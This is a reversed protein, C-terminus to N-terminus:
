EVLSRVTPDTDAAIRVRLESAPTEIRSLLAQFAAMRVSASRHFSVRNLVKAIQKQSLVARANERHQESTVVAILQTMHWSPLDRDADLRRLALAILEAEAGRDKLIRAAYRYVRTQEDLLLSLFLRSAAEGYRNRLLWACYVRYEPTQLTVLQSALRLVADDSADDLARITALAGALESQGLRRIGSTVLGDNRYDGTSALVTLAALRVSTSYHYKAPPLAIKDERSRKPKGRPRSSRLVLGGIELVHAGLAMVTPHDPRRHLLELVVPALMPKLEADLASELTALAVIGDDSLKRGKVARFAHVLPSQYRRAAEVDNKVVSFLIELLGANDRDMFVLVGITLVFDLRALIDIVFRRREAARSGLRAGITEAIVFEALEDYVFRVYLRGKEGETTRLIGENRLENFTSASLDFDNHSLGLSRSDVSIAREDWIQLALRQLLAEAEKTDLSGARLRVKELGRQLYNKFVDLPRLDHVDGLSEGAYTDAFLRLLLPGRLTERASPSLHCIIQRDVMYRSVAADREQDEFRQLQIHAALHRQVTEEFQTWRIDRCAVVLFLRSEEAEDLAARLLANLKSVRRAEDLGDVLVFLRQGTEALASSFTAFVDDGGFDLGRLAKKVALAIDGATLIQQVDILVTPHRKVLAEGLACLVNTKGDGASATVAICRRSFRDAADNIQRILDNALVVPAYSDDSVESPLRRLVSKLLATDRARITPTGALVRRTERLSGLIDSPSASDRSLTTMRRIVDRCQEEFLLTKAEPIAVAVEMRRIVDEVADFAFVSKLEAISDEFESASSSRQLRTRARALAERHDRGPPAAIETLRDVVALATSRFAAEGDALHAFLGEVAVRSVYLERKYKSSAVSRLQAAFQNRSVEHIRAGSIRRESAKEGTAIGAGALADVIGTRDIGSGRSSMLTTVREILVDWAAKAQDPEHLVSGLMFKAFQEDTGGVDVTLWHIQLLRLFQRFEDAEPTRGALERWAREAHESFLAFAAQQRQSTNERFDTRPDLHATRAVMRQLHIRIAEPTDAGTALVIRDREPDLPVAPDDPRGRGALFQRVFQSIASGLSSNMGREPDTRRKAQIFVFGGTSTRVVIDDVPRDAECVFSELRTRAPLQWPASQSNALILVSAWAGVRAQYDIGGTTAAGGGGRAPTNMADAVRCSREVYWVVPHVASEAGECLSEHVSGSRLV